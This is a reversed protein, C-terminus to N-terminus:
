RSLHYKLFYHNFFVPPPKSSAGACGPASAKLVDALADRCDAAIAYSLWPPAPVFIKSRVAGPRFIFNQSFTQEIASEM